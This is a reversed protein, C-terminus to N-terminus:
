AAKTEKDTSEGVEAEDIPDLIKASIITGIGKQQMKLLVRRPDGDGYAAIAQRVEEEVKARIPDDLAALTAIQDATLDGTYPEASMEARRGRVMSQLMAMFDSPGNEEDGAAALVDFEVDAGDKIATTKIRSPDNNARSAILKRLAEEVETQIDENAEALTAIQDATLDGAYPEVEKERLMARMMTAFPSLNKERDPSFADEFLQEMFGGLNPGKSSKPRQDSKGDLKGAKKIKKLRKKAGKEIMHTFMSKQAESLSDSFVKACICGEGCGIGAAAMMKTLNM